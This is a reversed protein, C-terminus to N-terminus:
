AAFLLERKEHAWRQFAPHTIFEGAKLQIADKIAKVSFEGPMRDLYTIMNGLTKESVHQALSGAIAYQADLTKPVISRKPNKLVDHPNPLERSVKLFACFKTAFDDGASGAFVEQEMEKPLGANMMEGVMAITRPCSSNKLERTPHFETIATPIFRLFMILEMPMKNQVAWEIWDDLNIELEVITAFRSKVPEIIASVGAKDQQRNTAAVFSVHDSIRKGNISRELLLQMIAKQVSVEAQGMDDIFVVLPRTAEIMMQLNGYPLFLAQGNIIAPIGKYDISEDVVPHMILRDFQLADTVSKVIDTKGVGPAGKILVPMQHPICFKLLTVLQKPSMDFNLLLTYNNKLLKIEKTASGAAEFSKRKM